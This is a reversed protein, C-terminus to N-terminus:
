CPKDAAPDARTGPRSLVEPKIRGVAVTYAGSIVAVLTCFLVVSQGQKWGAHWLNPGFSYYLVFASVGLGLLPFLGHWVKSFEKRKFRYFYVACGINVLVYSIMAFFVVTSGWWVYSNYTGIWRGWLTAVTLAVAFAMHQANWPVRYKPHLKALAHPLTGDRGMAYAVRAYGVVSALYVGFVAAMATIIVLIAGGRWYTQAVMAVPNTGQAVYRGWAEPPVVLCFGWSTFAWFLGLILCAVLIARPIITRPSDTEEAATAIVGFGVFSLIGFVLGEAFGRSGHLSGIPNFPSLDVRAHSSVAVLLTCGLAFVVAAEFLTMILSSKAAIEVGPYALAAVILTSILVGGVWTWYGVAVHFVSALLENFFLGFLIPQLIICFLFTALLVLGLWTGVWRNVAMSLWTYGSGASPIERAILAFSAATPLICLLAVLFVAPAINGAAGSIPGLNAYISLAPAMMVFGLAAAGFAGLANSKLSQSPSAL